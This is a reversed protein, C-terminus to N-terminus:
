VLTRHGGGDEYFMLQNSRRGDIMVIRVISQCLQDSGFRGVCGTLKQGASSVTMQDRAYRNERVQLMSSELGTLAVRSVKQM